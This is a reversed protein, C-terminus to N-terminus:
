YLKLIQKSFFKANLTVIYKYTMQCVYFNKEAEFILWIIGLGTNSWSRKLIVGTEFVKSSNQKEYNISVHFSKWCHFCRFCLMANTFSTWPVNRSTISRSKKPYTLTRNKKILFYKWIEHIQCYAAKM